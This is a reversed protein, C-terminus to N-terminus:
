DWGLEHIRDDDIGFHHAVEHVVTVVVEQRLEDLDSCMECLPLRYLHIRDPMTWDSAGGYDGRETLPVGDYLGLLDPEHGRDATLVAVNDMFSALEPPLLDLAEAVLRDFDEPAVPEMFRHYTPGMPHVVPGPLATM